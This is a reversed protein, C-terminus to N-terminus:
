PMVYVTRNDIRFHVKGTLELMKLVQSVPVRRDIEGGFKEKIVGEYKVNIDYARSLQLMINEITTGEFQFRGDKWAIVQELNVDHNRRLFDKGSEAQEGPAIILSSTRDSVKVRGELLTVKKVTNMVM